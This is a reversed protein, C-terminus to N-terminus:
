EVHVGVADSAAVVRGEADVGVVRYAYRGPRVKERHHTFDVGGRAVVERGDADRRILKYGRLSESSASEWKCAVVPADATERPLQECAIRLKEVEPRDAPIRIHVANTTAIVSGDAALYQAAYHFTHGPKVDLDRYGHQSLDRTAFIVERGNDDVARMLRYGAARDPEASTWKCGIAPGADTRFAECVLEPQPQPRPETEDPRVDTTPRTDTPRADTPRTDTPAVDTPKVDSPGVDSPATDAPKDDNPAADTPASDDAAVALPTTTRVHDGTRAGAATASLSGSSGAAALAAIPTAVLAATMGVGAVLRRLRRRAPRATTHTTTLPTTGPTSM